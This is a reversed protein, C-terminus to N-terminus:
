KLPLGLQQIMQLVQILLNTAVGTSVPEEFAEITVSFRRKTEPEELAAVLFITDTMARHTMHPKSWWGFVGTLSEILENLWADAADFSGFPGFTLALPAFDSPTLRLLFHM